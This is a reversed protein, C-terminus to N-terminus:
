SFMKVFATTICVPLNQLNCSLFNFSFPFFDLSPKEIQGKKLKTTKNQKTKNVIRPVIRFNGPAQRNACHKNGGTTKTKNQKTKGKNM